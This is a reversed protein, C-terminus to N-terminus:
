HCGSTAGFWDQPVLLRVQSRPSPVPCPPQKISRCAGTKFGPQPQIGTGETKKKVGQPIAVPLTARGFDM